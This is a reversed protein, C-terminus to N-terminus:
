KEEHGVKEILWELRDTTAQANLKHTTDYWKLTKPQQALDYFKQSSAVSSFEDRKAQQFLVSAPAAFKIYEGHEIPEFSKVFRAFQEPTFEKKLEAAYPNKEDSWFAIRSYGSGMLVYTKIRTEVGALVGGIEAGYSYGVFAIRKDDTNPRTLILDVARRLDIVLQIRMDREAEIYDYESKKWPAPRAAVSDILLSVINAKEALEIAERLFQERSAGAGHIYIVAGFKRGIKEAPEVLYATVKGGKPSAYLVDRIIADSKRQSSRIEFELPQNRDYEFLKLQRKDTQAVAPLGASLLFIVIANLIKLKM